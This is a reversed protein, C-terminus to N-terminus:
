SQLLAGAPPRPHMQRASAACWCLPPPLPTPAPVLLDILLNQVCPGHAPSPFAQGSSPVSCLRGAPPPLKPTRTQITRSTPTTSQSRSIRAPTSTFKSAHTCCETKLSIGRKKPAAKLATPPRWWNKPKPCWCPAFYNQILIKYLNGYGFISFTPYTLTASTTMIPLIPPFWSTGCAVIAKRM